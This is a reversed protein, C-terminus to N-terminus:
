LNQLKTSPEITRAQYACIPSNCSRDQRASRVEPGAVPASKNSSHYRLSGPPLRGRRWSAAERQLLTLRLCNTPGHLVSPLCTEPKWHPPAPRPRLVIARVNTPKPDDCTCLRILQQIRQARPVVPLWEQSRLTSRPLRTQDQCAYLSEESNAIPVSPPM